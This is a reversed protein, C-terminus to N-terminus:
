KVGRFGNKILHLNKTKVGESFEDPDDDIIQYDDPHFYLYREIEKDRTRGKLIPTKDAIECGHEALLKELRKIQPLNEEHKTSIFGTRWSSTLVIKANKRKAYACFNKICNKDLSYPIKWQEKRNLVGDIDLFIIM